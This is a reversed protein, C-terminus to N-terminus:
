RRRTLWAEVEHRAQESTREPAHGGGADAQRATEQLTADLALAWTGSHPETDALAIRVLDVLAAVQVSQGDIDVAQASRALDGYGFTGAPREVVRLRSDHQAPGRDEPHVVVEVSAAPDLLLPGGHLAGATEGVVIARLSRAALDRLASMRELQDRGLHRVRDAPTRHLQEYILPVWSDDAPAMGTALDLGCARVAGVVDDFKPETAGTEWRAITSQPKGLRDGLDQQSLGARRRAIVIVDRARM